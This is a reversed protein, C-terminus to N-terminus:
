ARGSARWSKSRRPSVVAQVPRGLRTLDGLDDGKERGGSGAVDGAGDDGGVAAAGRDLGRWGLPCLLGATAMASTAMLMTVELRDFLRGQHDVAVLVDHQRRDVGIDEGLV